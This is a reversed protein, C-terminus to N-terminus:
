HHDKIEAAHADGSFKNSICILLDWELGILYSVGPHPGTIPNLLCQLHNWHGSFHSFGQNEPFEKIVLQM